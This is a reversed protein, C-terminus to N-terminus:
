RMICVCRERSYFIKSLALSECVNVVVSLLLSLSLLSTKFTFFSHATLTLYVSLFSLLPKRINQQTFFHWWSWLWWWRWQTCSLTNRLFFNTSAYYLMCVNVNTIYKSICRKKKYLQQMFANRSRNFFEFGREEEERKRVAKSQMKKRSYM